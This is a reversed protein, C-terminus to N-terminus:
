QPDGAPVEAEDVVAVVRRQETEHVALGANFAGLKQDIGLLCLSYHFGKLRHQRPDPDVPADTALKRCPCLEIAVAKGARLESGKLGVMWAEDAGSAQHGPENGTVADVELYARHGLLVPM